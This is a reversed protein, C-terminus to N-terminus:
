DLKWIEIYSYVEVVGFGSAPGYGATAETDVCRHQLEISSSAGLTFEGSVTSKTVVNDTTVPDTANESTGILLDAAGTINYIKAKHANVGQAPANAKIRYKGAPLTIQNSSLSAGSINNTVVTNLDRTQWAGSTFTGGNTGSSKQDQVNIYNMFPNVISTSTGKLMEVIAEYLQTDDAKDLTLGASEVVGAVEEQVAEAWDDTVTTGTTADSTFHGNPKPGAGARTPKTTAADSTDIRFM